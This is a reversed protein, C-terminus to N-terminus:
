SGDMNSAGGPVLTLRAFQSLRGQDTVIRIREGAAWHETLNNYFPSRFHGSSGGIAMFESGDLDALDYIAQYSSAYASRFFRPATRLDVMNNFLSEPGGPAATTQSFMDGLVPLGGFGVHGLRLRGVRSWLWSGSDNGYAEELALRADTLSERLLQDCTETADTEQHDCWEPREGSLAMDVPTFLIARVGGLDPGLEDDIIRRNLMEVWTMFVSPAASELTFRYQWGRLIDVLAADNQNAPQVGLLLPVIRRAVPSVANNQMARFSAKDHVAAGDLLEHIRIARDPPAWSDSLYHPYGDGVIRQNATVIRGSTPNVLRPHEEHSLYTRANGDRPGLAVSTAHAVPRSPIAGGTVYAITGATDAFSFNLSPGTHLEVAALGERVTHARNLRLLAAPSTQPLDLGHYRREEVLGAQDTFRTLEDPWIVGDQTAWVTDVVDRGFRVRIREVTPEASIWPQDPGARYRGLNDMDRELLAADIVDISSATMGWAVAGNHGVVMGPLGAVSAGVIDRGPISHHQLQWHNPLGAALHPDNAMLPRGSATHDGSLTWNDSFARDAFAATSQRVREGESAPIIPPVDEDHPDLIGVAGPSVAEREILTRTFEHGSSSLISQFQHLVLFADAPHWPEPNVHLIVMEPPRRFAPSELWANVGAAYAELLARESEPFAAWSRDVSQGVQQARFRHDSGVTISGLWESLTGASTQRLLAMQWFRDQAHVFGQAYYLDHESSAYIHPVGHEDRVVEVPADLGPARVDGDWAPLGGNARWLTLGAYAAVVVPVAAAMAILRVVRAKSVM